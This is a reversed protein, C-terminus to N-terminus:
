QNYTATRNSPLVLGHVAYHSHKAQGYSGATLRGTVDHSNSVDDYNFGMFSQFALKVNKLM